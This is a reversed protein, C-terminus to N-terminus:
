KGKPKGDAEAIKDDEGRSLEEVMKAHRKDVAPGFEQVMWDGPDMEAHLALRRVKRVFSRPMRMPETPEAKKPRGMVAVKDVAMGEVGPKRDRLIYAVSAIQFIL